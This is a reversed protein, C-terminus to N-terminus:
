GSSPIDKEIQHRQFKISDRVLRFLTEYHGHKGEKILEDYRNKIYVNLERSMLKQKDDWELFNQKMPHIQYRSPMINEGTPIANGYKGTDYRHSEIALLGDMNVKLQM